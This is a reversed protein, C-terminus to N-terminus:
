AIDRSTDVQIGEEVYFRFYETVPRKGRLKPVAFKSVLREGVREVEIDFVVDSIDLVKNVVDVPHLNKILHCYVVVGKEKALTYLKSILWDKLGWDTNLNLFFSLSDIIVNYEGSEEEAIRSLRDDVYDFIEKDRYRDEVIFQGYENLYYQEYVDVFTVFSTDLRLKEMDQKVFKAPRSTTFYYTKMVTAFQYLFAEPMALPNAYVCVFSGAPLGGDLRRDLLVIGTPVDSTKLIQM